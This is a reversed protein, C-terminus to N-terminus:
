AGMSYVNGSKNLQAITKKVIEEDGVHIHIATKEFGNVAKASGEQVHKILEDLKELMNYASKSKEIKESMDIINSTIQKFNDVKTPEISSVSNMFRSISDIFGSSANTSFDVSVDSFSDLLDSISSVTGESISSLKMSSVTKWMSEFAKMKAVSDSGMDDIAEALDEQPSDFLGSLGKSLAQVVAIAAGIALIGVAIPIAAKALATLGSALGTLGTSAAISGTEIAAGAEIAVPAMAALGKTMGIAASSGADFLSLGKKLLGWTGGLISNLNLLKKGLGFIISAGFLTVIPALPGFADAVTLLASTLTHFLDIIPELVVSLSSLFNQWKEGLTAARQNKKNLEEQEVAAQRTYQAVDNLSGGFVREAVTMDSIGAATAIAQREYKGLSSWNRGTAKFAQNLTQIREAENQNMLQLTNLYPGGLIANLRGVSAAATDFTDFGQAIKLLESTEIRLSKATAFMEKFVNTAQGGYKGIEPLANVFDSLVTQFTESTLKSIGLLKSMNGISEENGQNLTDIFYSLAKTSTEAGVGLRSVLAIYGTLNRKGSESQQNFQRVNKLLGLMSDATDQLSVNFYRIDRWSALITDNWESNFGTAKLFAVGVNDLTSLLATTNKGFMSLLNVGINLPDMFNKLIKAPYTLYEKFLDLHLRGKRMEDLLMFLPNSDVTGGKFSIGIKDFINDINTEHSNRIKAVMKGHRIKEEEQKQIIKQVELRRQDITNLLKMQNRLKEMEPNVTGMKDILEDFAIIAKAPDLKSIKEFEPKFKEFDLKLKELAIGIQQSVEEQKKTGRELIETSKGIAQNFRELFKKMDEADEETLFAGIKNLGRLEKTISSIIQDVDTKPGAM